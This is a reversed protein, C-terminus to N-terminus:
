AALRDLEALLLPAIPEAEGRDSEIVIAGEAARSIAHMVESPRERAPVANAVLAMAGEGGSPYRPQWEAEPRYSTVVIAGIPLAEEGAVGGLSEVPHETQIQSGDRLSLPKPYPHVLGEWDLVAFEDSFYTAGQRVLAAALRTKGAFSMGPFVIARGAHAVAGAHIFIHNPAKRAIYLRLEMDLMMLALDLGLGTNQVRNDKTFAYTGSPEATITFRSQVEGSPCPIWGPPLIARARKLVEPHSTGVAMRVGYAEFPLEHEERTSPLKLEDGTIPVGNSGPEDRNM